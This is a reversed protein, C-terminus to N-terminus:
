NSFLSPYPFTHIFSHPWEPIHTDTHAKGSEGVKTHGLPPPRVSFLPLSLPLFFFSTHCCCCCHTLGAPQLTSRTFTRVEEVLGRAGHRGRRVGAVRAVARCAGSVFWCRPSFFFAFSGLSQRLVHFLASLHHSLSSSSGDLQNEPKFGVHVSRKGWIDSQSTVCPFSGQSSKIQSFLWQYQKINRSKRINCILFNKLHWVWLFGAVLRNVYCFIGQLLVSFSCLHIM